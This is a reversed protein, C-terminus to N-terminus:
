SELAEIEKFVLFVCGNSTPARYAGLAELLKTAIAAMTWGDAEEADWKPATLCAIENEAGFDFVKLLDMKM